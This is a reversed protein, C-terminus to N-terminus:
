LMEMSTVVWKEFKENGVFIYEGPIRNKLMKGDSKFLLQHILM